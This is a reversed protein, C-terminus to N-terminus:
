IGEQVSHMKDYGTVRVLVLSITTAVIVLVLAIASGVGFDFSQFAKRYMYFATITTDTGPGGKTLILVTDFTTLGGVVM